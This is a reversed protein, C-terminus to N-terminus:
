RGAIIKGQFRFSYLVFLFFARCAKKKRVHKFRNPLTMMASLSVSRYEGRKLVIKYHCWMSLENQCISM